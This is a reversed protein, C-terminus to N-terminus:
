FDRRGEFSSEIVGPRTLEYLAIRQGGPAAFTHVPGQPTKWPTDGVGAAPACSGWRPMSIPWATCSCPSSARSIAPWCSGRRTRRSSSWPSEPAWARSRPSRGRVPVGEFYAVDAAPDLSPMYVYDLREFVHRRHGVLSTRTCRCTSRSTGPWPCCCRGRGSCSGAPSSVGSGPAAMLVIPSGGVDPGGHALGFVVAQAILATWTGTVRATWNMLAGRYALEEAVGNATAFVLAPLLFGLNGLDLSISGFFPRALAAGVLLGIPGLVIAGGISWWVVQRRPWRLLLDAPKARLVVALIALVGLVLAAEALRWVAPPSTLTACDAGGPDAVPAPLLGWCLAVAVPIPAAWAWRVPADRRVAVVVGAALAALM